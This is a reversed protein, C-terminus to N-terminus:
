KDLPGTQFLVDKHVGKLDSRTSHSAIRPNEKFVIQGIIRM